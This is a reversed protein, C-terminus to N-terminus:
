GVNSRSTEALGVFTTELTTLDVRAATHQPMRTWGAADLGSSSFAVAGGPLRKWSLQFYHDRHDRPLRPGLGSSEFDEHPPVAGENAHVAILQTSDLLLLNLAAAPYARRIAEVVGTTSALLSDGRRVRELILAFVIASDTTGGVDDVVAPDAMARLRDVPTVSGNHAFAIGDVLFPHTNSEQNAMGETALRLHSIRASAPARTLAETLEPNDTGPTDDRTRLVDGDQVWATGWGDDHLIGMAQWDACADAGVIDASTSPTPAAYGLLRCM